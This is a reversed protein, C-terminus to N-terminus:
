ENSPPKPIEIKLPEGLELLSKLSNLIMPWGNRGGELYKPDLSEDHEELMTLRVIDGLQDIQYTVFSDPLHRLEEVWDVRWSVKLRHPPDCELVVGHVDLGHGEDHWMEFESGVEWNSEVRRGFFFKKSMEPDTLAHWVKEATTKIYTTYVTDRSTVGEGTGIDPKGDSEGEPLAAGGELLSKLSSFIGPWGNRIAKYLKSDPEFRDHVLTLKVVEGMPELTYTARSPPENRFEEHLVHHFTFSLRRPPDIELMVGDDGLEGEPTRIEFPDGVREGFKARYGSWYVPITEPDTLAEWLKEPTTKIYTVYVFEPKEITNM